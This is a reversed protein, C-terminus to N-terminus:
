RAVDSQDSLRGTRIPGRPPESRKQAPPPTPPGLCQLKDYGAVILCGDAAALNAGCDSVPSLSIPSRTRTGSEPDLVYIENRTPWFIENDAILGRGMGRVGATSSEPWTWATKGTHVHVSALRNGSVVLRQGVVGLLQLADALENNVWVTKGTDADFAIVSPTDAPTVIVLGDHYVAPTPDRDFHLPMANSPAFKQGTLRPYKTLWCIEGSAADLAAVLGLNTNFYIRDGALTLLNHTIEDGLSGAPTDASGISTRWLRQGSTTDFCAVYANPSAGSRRMAVFLRRGDSVPAGDFSWAAEGPPIRLALLGERKLDLGVIRDGSIEPRREPHATAPPGVRGYAVHDFITLTLRPVGSAIGIGNYQVPNEDGLTEPVENRFVLGSPTVAPKGTALHAAHIGAADAFVIVGGTVVPFCTLPHGSERASVTPQEQAPAPNVIGGFVVQAVRRESQPPIISIPQEWLPVLPSSVAAANPSRTTAGAFTPWDTAPPSFKWERASALIKELTAAYPGLQGALQGTAEAHVKRFESLEQAARDLQAARISALILRARVDALGIKSDPYALVDDKGNTSRLSPNIQRWYRRAAECDGRELALDGLALLADDGWSSCLAEDVVRSLLQDDHAALGDRYWREALADARRRYSALAEPPFKALQLQCYTRLNVYRNDDLAVVRDTNDAALENYIDVAEDWNGATALARAQELRTATTGAIANVQPATLEAQLPQGGFIIRLGPQAHATALNLFLVALAGGIRLLPLKLVLRDNQPLSPSRFIRMAM